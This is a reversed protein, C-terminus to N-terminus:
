ISQKTKSIQNEDKRKEKPKLKERPVDTGTSFTFGGDEEVITIEWKGTKENYHHKEYKM